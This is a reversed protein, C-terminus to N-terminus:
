LKVGSKIGFIWQNYGGLRPAPGSSQALLMSVFDVSPVVLLLGLDIPVGAGMVFGCNYSYSPRLSLDVKTSYSIRSFTPGIQIYCPVPLLDTPEYRYVMSAQWRRWSGDPDFKKLFGAVGNAQYGLSLVIATEDSTYKACEVSFASGNGAIQDGYRGIPDSLGVGCLVVMKEGEVRDLRGSGFPKYSLGLTLAEEPITKGWSLLPNGAPRIHDWVSAVSFLLQFDYFEIGLEFSSTLYNFAGSYYEDFVGVVMKESIALGNDLSLGPFEYMAAAHGTIDHPWFKLSSFLAAFSSKASYDAYRDAIQRSGEFALTLKQYQTVIPAVSVGVRMFAPAPDSQSLDGYDVPAGFDTLSFGATFRDNWDKMHYFLGASFLFENAAGSNSGMEVGFPALHSYANRITAGVALDRNLDTAYSLALAWEYGHFTQLVTPDISSRSYNGLELYMFELGFVGIGEVRMGGRYWSLPYSDPLIFMDLKGSEATPDSLSYLCAPNYQIGSLGGSLAVGQEGLGFSFASRPYTVFPLANFYYQAQSPLSFFFVLLVFGLKKMKSKEGM